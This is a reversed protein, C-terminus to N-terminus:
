ILREGKVIIIRTTWREGLSVIVWIRCIQLLLFLSLLPWSVAASSDSLFFLAVLWSVHLAVILPYHSAGIEIGGKARLKNINHNSLMLEAFRQLAVAIVIWQALSM